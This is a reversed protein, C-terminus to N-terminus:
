YSTQLHLLVIYRRGDNVVPWMNSPAARKHPARRDRRRSCTSNILISAFDLGFSVHLTRSSFGTARRVALPYDFSPPPILRQKKKLLIRASKLASEDLLIRLFLKM